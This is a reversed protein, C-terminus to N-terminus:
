QVLSTPYPSFEYVLLRFPNWQYSKTSGAIPWKWCLGWFRRAETKKKRKERFVPIINPFVPVKVYFKIIYQHVTINQLLDASKFGYKKIFFKLLNYMTNSM